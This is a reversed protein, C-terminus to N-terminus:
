QKVLKKTIVQGNNDLVNLMYVGAAINNALSIVHVTENEALMKEAIVKGALDTITAKEANLMEISFSNSFPNPFVSFSTGGAISEIGTCVEVVLLATDSYTCGNEELTYTVITEGFGATSPSFFGSANVGIGSYTGGSPTGQTLEFAPAFVCIPNDDFDFAVGTLAHVQVSASITASAGGCTNIAVVQIIANNSGAVFSASNNSIITATGWNSTWQYTIGTAPAPLVEAIVQAGACVTDAVVITNPAQPTAVIDIQLTQPPSSGCSNNATVSITGSTNGATIETVNSISNDYGFGSPMIWTYDVANVDLPVEYIDAENVCLTASGTIAAPQAPATNVTVAFPASAPGTGCSNVGAVTINGSQANATFQVEVTNNNISSITAGAPLTWAYSDATADIPVTYNETTGSCVTAAGSITGLQNPLTNITIGFPTSVAGTGCTNVGAVTINGPQANSGFAVTINNTGSGNTITAGAPLLWSYSTAGNITAVTYTATSNACVANNGTINGVSSPLTNITLTAANSTINNGCAAIIVCRYQYGNM